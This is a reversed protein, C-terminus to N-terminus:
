HGPLIRLIHNIWIYNTTKFDINHVNETFGDSEHRAANYKVIWNEIIIFKLHVKTNASLNLKYSRFKENVYEVAAVIFLYGLKIRFYKM